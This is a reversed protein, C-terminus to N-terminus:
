GLSGVFEALRKHVQKKLSYLFPGAMVLSDSTQRMLLNLSTEAFLHEYEFTMYALLGIISYTITHTVMTKSIVEVITPRSQDM